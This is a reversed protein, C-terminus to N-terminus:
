YTGLPAYIGDRKDNAWQKLIYCFYSRVIVFIGTIVFTGFIMYDKCSDIEINWSPEEKAMDKKFERCAPEMWADGVGLPVLAQVIVPVIILGILYCIWVITRLKLTDHDPNLMMDLFLFGFLATCIITTVM